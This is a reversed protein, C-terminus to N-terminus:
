VARYGQAHQDAAKMVKSYDRMFAATPDGNMREYNGVNSRPQEIFGDENIDAGLMDSTYTGQNMEPWEEAPEPTSQMSMATERLIEGLPGDLAVLPSSRKPQAIPQQPKAKIVPKSETLLPKLAKIEEKVITRVEDRVVKRLIKIFDSAKM